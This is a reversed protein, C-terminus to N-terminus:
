RLLLKIRSFEKKVVLKFTKLRLTLIATLSTQTDKVVQPIIM